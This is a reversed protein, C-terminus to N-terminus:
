RMGEAYSTANRTESCKIKRSKCKTAANISKKNGTSGFPWDSPIAKSSHCLCVKEKEFEVV